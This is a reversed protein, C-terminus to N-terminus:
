SLQRTTNQLKKRFEKNDLLMRMTTNSFYENVKDTAITLARHCICEDIRECDENKRDCPLVDLEEGSHYLIERVSVSELPRAFSFGGGPGRVSKLIGAKKLKFFIQELFVPSITEKKSLRGVSVAEGNSSM